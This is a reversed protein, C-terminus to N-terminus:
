IKQSPAIPAAPSNPTAPTKPAIPASLEPFNKSFNFEYIQGITARVQPALDSLKTLKSKFEHSVIKSLGKEFYNAVLSCETGKHLYLLNLPSTQMELDGAINVIMDSSNKINIWKISRARTKNQDANVFVNENIQNLIHLNGTGNAFNYFHIRKNSKENVLWIIRFEAAPIEKNTSPFTGICLYSSDPNKTAIERMAQLPGETSNLGSSIFDASNKSVLAGTISKANESNAEFVKKICGQRENSIVRRIPPADKERNLSIKVEFPRGSGPVQSTDLEMIGSSYNQNKILRFSNKTGIRQFALVENPLRENTIEYIVIGFNDAYSFKHLDYETPTQASIKERFLCNMQKLHAQSSIFGLSFHTFPFESLTSGVKIRKRGIEYERANIPTLVYNARMKISRDESVIIGNAAITKKNDFRETGSFYGEEGLSIRFNYLPEVGNKTPANTVDITSIKNNNNNTYQGPKSQKYTASHKLVVNEFDKIELDLFLEKNDASLGRKVFFARAQTSIRSTRDSGLYLFGKYFKTSKPNTAAVSQPSASKPFLLIILALLSINSFKINRHSSSDKRLLEIISGSIDIELWHKSFRAARPNIHHNNHLGEGWTFLALLRNNRSQDISLAKNQTGLLHGLTNTASGSNWLIMAPFLYAYIVAFPDLVALFAAWTIQILWYNRHLFIQFPSRMLDAMYRIKPKTFMSLWQVRVFSQHIPSHPDRETDTFRHHERHIACWALPSGTLGIVGLFSGLYPFWRPATWSRHSLLRHYTISMGLCGTLFYVVLAIFYHHAEGWLLMPIISAHALIQAVLLAEAGRQQLVRM